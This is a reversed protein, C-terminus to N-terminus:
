GDTDRRPRLDLLVDTFYPALAQLLSERESFARPLEAERLQLRAAGDKQMRVRLDTYGLAGLAAEAEEVRTLDAETIPMGTPIRTALCAYAPRDWAELGAARARARIMPKTLGAERLPSRVGLERLARMGPRDAEEDSANTGDLLCDLGDERAAAKLLSFLARKCHYCRDPPNAEIQPCALVDLPLVRLPVELKKALAEAARIEFDPQFQSRVCYARVDCGAQRAAYLLYASDTGGSLAVAAKPVDKFFEEITM